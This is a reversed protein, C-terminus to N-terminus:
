RIMRVNRKAYTWGLVEIFPKRPESKGWCIMDLFNFTNRPPGKLLNQEIKTQELGGKLGELGKKEKREEKGRFKM